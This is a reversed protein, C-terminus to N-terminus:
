LLLGVRLCVRVQGGGAGAGRRRGRQRVENGLGPRRSQYVPLPMGDQLGASAYAQTVAGGKFTGTGSFAGAAYSNGDPAVRVRNYRESGPASKAERIQSFGLTGTPLVPQWFADNIIIDCDITYGNPLYSCASGSLPTTSGQLRMAVSRGVLARVQPDYPSLFFSYAWEQQAATSVAVVETAPDFSGDGNFDLLIRNYLQAYDGNAYGNGVYGTVPQGPYASFPIPFYKYGAESVSPYYSSQGNMSLYSGQGLGGGPVCYQQVTFDYPQSLSTSAQEVTVYYAGGALLASADGSNFRASATLLSNTSTNQLIRYEQQKTGTFSRVQVRGGTAPMTFSFAKDVGPFYGENYNSIDYRPPASPDYKYNWLQDGQGALTGQVRQGLAVTTASGITQYAPIRQNSCTLQVGYRGKYTSPDYYDFHRRVVVYHLGLRLTRNLLLASDETEANWGLDYVQLTQGNPLTNRLTFYTNGTGALSAQLTDSVFGTSVNRDAYRLSDTVTQGCGLPRYPGGALVPTSVCVALVAALALGARLLSTKM